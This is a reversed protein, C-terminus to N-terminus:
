AKVRVSKGEAMDNWGDQDELHFDRDEILESGDNIPSVLAEAMKTLLEFVTNPNETLKNAIKVSDGSSILRMQVMNNLTTKLRTEDLALKKITAVKELTVREQQALKSQLGELETQSRSHEALSSEMFSLVENLVPVLSQEELPM